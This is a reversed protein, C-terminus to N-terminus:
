RTVAIRRELNAMERIFEAELDLDMESAIVLVSWLCDVLEHAIRRDIDDATRFQNKAMILKVLDGVDAVFGQSYEALGWQRHGEHRNLEAYKQKIENARETLSSLEM